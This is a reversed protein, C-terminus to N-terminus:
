SGVLIKEKYIFYAVICGAVLIFGMIIYYLIVALLSRWATKKISFGLMKRFCATFTVTIVIPIWNSMSDSINQSFLYMLSILCRYLVVMVMSYTIAVLYEARYYRKRNNKGYWARTAFLFFPITLMTVATYHTNYFKFGMGIIKYIKSKRVSIAKENVRIINIYTLTTDATPEAEDEKEMELFEKEMEQMDGRSGTISFLLIYVTLAAILMPFPSFYRRRKGNLIEVIMEGPRTFLNKLTFWVGGDKSLFAALLNEFIFKMTFRGTEASQGCEPCFKGPFETGCNLCHTTKPTPQPQIITQTENQM